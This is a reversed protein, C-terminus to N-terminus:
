RSVSTNSRRRSSQIAARAPDGQARPIGNLPSPSAGFSSGGRPQDGLTINTLRRALGAERVALAGLANLGLIGLVLGISATLAAEPFTDIRWAGIGATSGDVPFTVLTAICALPLGIAIVVAAVNVLGIPLKALLYLAAAYTRRDIMRLRLRTWWRSDAAPAALRAPAPEDLVWAALRRELCVIRWIGGFTVSLVPIGLIVVLLGFGLAFGVVVAVVYLVGLPLSVLLYGISRCVGGPIAAAWRRRTM